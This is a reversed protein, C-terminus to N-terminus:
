TEIFGSIAITVKNATDAVGEIADGQTSMIIGPKGLDLIVTDDAPISAKFFQNAVGEGDGNPVANLTVTEASANTNHLVIVQVYVTEGAGVTAHAASAAALQDLMDGSDLLNAASIGM